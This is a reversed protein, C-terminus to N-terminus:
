CLSVADSLLIVQLMAALSTLVVSIFKGPDACYHADALHVAALRHGCKTLRAFVNHVAKNHTYLEVQGPCDFLLYTEQPLSKLQQELWDVNQELYEMCYVLGGNPGLNLYEMVESLQVLEAIDIACEYMYGDNAPDLNIV